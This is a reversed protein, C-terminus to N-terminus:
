REVFDIPGGRRCLAVLAGLAEKADTSPMGGFTKFWAFVSPGVKEEPVRALLAVLPAQVVRGDGRPAGLHESLSWARTEGVQQGVCAILVDLDERTINLSFDVEGGDPGRFFM